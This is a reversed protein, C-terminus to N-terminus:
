IQKQDAFAICCNILQIIETFSSTRTYGVPKEGCKGGYSGIDYMVQKEPIWHSRFIPGGSDGQCSGKGPIMACVVNTM